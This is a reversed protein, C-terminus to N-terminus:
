ASRWRAEDFLVAAALVDHVNHIPFRTPKKKKKGAPGKDGEPLEEIILTSRSAYGATLVYRSEGRKWLPGDSREFHMEFAFLRYTGLPKHKKKKGKPAQKSM